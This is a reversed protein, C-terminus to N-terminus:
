MQQPAEIAKVRMARQRHEHDRNLATAQRDATWFDECSGIVADALDTGADKLTMDIVWYRSNRPVVQYRLRAPRAGVPRSVTVPKPAGILFNVVKRFTSM